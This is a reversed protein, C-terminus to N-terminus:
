FVRHIIVLEPEKEPYVPRVLGRLEERDHGETHKVWGTKRKWPDVEKSEDTAQIKQKQIDDMTAMGQDIVKELKEWQTEKAEGSM